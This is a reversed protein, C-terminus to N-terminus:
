SFSNSSNSRTHHSSTLRNQLFLNMMVILPSIAQVLCAFWVSPKSIILDGGSRDHLLVSRPRPASEIMAKEPTQALILGVFLVLALFLNYFGQNFAILQVIGADEASCVSSSSSKLCEYFLHIGYHLRLHSFPHFNRWLFLAYQAELFKSNPM